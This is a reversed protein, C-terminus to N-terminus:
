SEQESDSSGVQETPETPTAAEAHPPPDYHDLSALADEGLEIEIAARDDGDAATNAFAGTEVLRKAVDGDVLIPAAPINNLYAGPVPYVTRRKSM